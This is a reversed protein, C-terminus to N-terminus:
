SSTKRLNETNRYFITKVTDIPQKLGRAIQEFSRGDMIRQRLITRAPDPLGKIRDLLKGSVEKKSVEKSPSEGPSFGGDPNTEELSVHATRKRHRLHNLAENRSVTVLWSTFKGLESKYLHAKRFAKMFIEQILDEVTQLDGTVDHVAKAVLRFHRKVIIDGADRDGDVIRAILQEDKLDELKVPVAM